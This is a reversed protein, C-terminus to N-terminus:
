SLLHQRDCGQRLLRSRPNKQDVFIFGHTELDFSERMSRGNRLTVQHDQYSGSVRRSGKGAGMVENVPLEGTDVGYTLHVVIQDLNTSASTDNAM